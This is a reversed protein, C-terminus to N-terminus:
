LCAPRICDLVRMAHSSVNIWTTCSMSLNEGRTAHLVDCPVDCVFPPFLYRYLVTSRLTVTLISLAGSTIAHSPLTLPMLHYWVLLLMANDAQTELAEQQVAGQNSSKFSCQDVCYEARMQKDCAM